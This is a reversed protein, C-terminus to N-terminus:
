SIDDPIFIVLTM